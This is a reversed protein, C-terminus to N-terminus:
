IVGELRRLSHEVFGKPLPSAKRVKPYFVVRRVEKLISASIILEFKGERWADVILAPNGRETLTASVFLNADLVVKLM